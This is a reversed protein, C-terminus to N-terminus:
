NITTSSRNFYVLHIFLFILILILPVILGVLFIMGYMIKSFLFEFINNWSDVNKIFGFYFVILGMLVLNLELFLRTFKALLINKRTGNRSRQFMIYALIYLFILSGWKSVLELYNEGGHTKLFFEVMLIFFELQSLLASEITLIM